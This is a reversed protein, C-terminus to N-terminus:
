TKKGGNIEGYDNLILIDLKWEYKSRERWIMFQIAVYEEAEELTWENIEALHQLVRPFNGQTSARGIHKVEHCKPCLAILRLLTQTYSEDDYEWLEHCEVPWKSGQGSCIECIYRAEAYAIKRLRDWEEKSVNSRVNTYWATAPVLEVTLRPPKM